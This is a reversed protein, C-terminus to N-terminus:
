KNIFKKGNVIVLGKCGEGVRQGSLNYMPADTHIKFQSNYISEIGTTEDDGFGFGDKALSAPVALYAKNAAIDFAAGDAAGWYFGLTTGNHMTLRYFKNSGTMAVSSAKLMNDNGLVSAGEDTILGLTHNGSTTSSIMVGTNAPVIDGTAYNEISLKGDVVKIESVVIDSLVVFARNTSFTGYYKTGDTCASALTVTEPEAYKITISKFRIQTNDSENNTLTVENEFGTWVGSNITGKDATLTNGNYGSSYTFEIKGIKKTSSFTLTNGKYFRIEAGGDYFKPDNTNTGKDFTITVNDGDITEIVTGNTTEGLESITITEGTVPTSDTITVTFTASGANFSADTAQTVTITQVSPTVKTPTITIKKNEADVTASIYDSESV